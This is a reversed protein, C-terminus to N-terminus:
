GSGDGGKRVLPYGLEELRLAVEAEAICSHLPRGLREEILRVHSSVTSRNVRLAAAASSVNGGADLYARLTRLLDVGSSSPPEELPTLFLARLSSALLDDQVVSALLAVEGYRVLPDGRAAGVPLAAQAQRHTLRWGTLGAAAEGLALTTERLCDRDAREAAEAASLQRRGGLWGWAVDLRPRVLLLRRGAAAALERIADAARPGSAIAGLHHSGFDYGLRSTDLLEGALLMEIREAHAQEVSRSRRAKEMRYEESVATVVEDFLAGHVRFFGRAQEATTEEWAAAEQMVFDGLLIYAAFYRRLVTDLSIGVRAARRAQDLLAPPTPETPRAVREDTSLWYGVAVSVAARLGTLYEPNDTDALDSISNVRTFIAAEIEQCRARLRESVIVHADPRSM